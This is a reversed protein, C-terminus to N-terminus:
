FTVEFIQTALPSLSIMCGVSAGKGDRILSIETAQKGSGGFEERDTNFIEKIQKVTGLRIFYEPYYNPTFNHVCLVYRNDGKRLYSIVSNRYDSFDVWEFGKSDFDNEWLAREEKYFRNMERVL